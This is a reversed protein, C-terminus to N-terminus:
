PKPVEFRFSDIFRQTASPAPAPNVAIARYVRSGSIFAKEAVLQEGVAFQYERGPVNRESLVAEKMLRAPKGDQM